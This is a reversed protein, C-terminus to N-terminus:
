RELVEVAPRLMAPARARHRAVPMFSSSKWFGMMATWFGASIWAFLVAYVVLAALELKQTGHYPLVATMYYTAIYTQFLVLGLLLLRRRLGAARWPPHKVPSDQVPEEARAAMHQGGFLKAGLWQRLRRLPNHDWPYPVMSARKMPPTAVLRTRGHRDRPFAGPLQADGRHAPHASRLLELRAPISAGAASEAPEASNDALARHLETFLEAPAPPPTRRLLADARRQLPESREPPLALRALYADVRSRLQSRNDANQM